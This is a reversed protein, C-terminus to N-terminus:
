NGKNNVNSQVTFDASITMQFYDSAQIRVPQNQTTQLLANVVMYKAQNLVNIQDKTLQVQMVGRAPDSSYLTTKDIQAPDLVAKAFGASTDPISTALPQHFENQLQFSMQAALPLANVYYIKIEGQSINSKNQQSPLGSFDVSITDKYTAPQSPTAIELPIDVGIATDFYIDSGNDTLTPNNIEAKGIFRVETPLNAIFDGLNSNSQDFTAVGELTDGSMSQQQIPFKIIQSKTLPQNHSWLGTVNTTDVAYASGSVPQLYTQNNHPDVGVVGSFVDNGASLNTKYFLSLKANLISFSGVRDSFYKLQDIKSIKAELDDFLDLTDTGNSPDDYNLNVMLGKPYTYGPPLKPLAKIQATNVYGTRASFRVVGNDKTNFINSMDSRTTDVLADAGGLFSLQKTFLPVQISHEISFDPKSPIECGAFASCM